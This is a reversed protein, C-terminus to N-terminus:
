VTLKEGKENRFTNYSGNGTFYIYDPPIIGPAGNHYATLVNEAIARIEDTVPHNRDYGFFQSPASVVKLVTNGWRGTDLRNLACWMVAEIGREGCGRAEGWAMRSLACIDEESPEWHDVTLYEFIGEDPVEVCLWEGRAKNAKQLIPKTGEIVTVSHAPIIIYSAAEATVPAPKAACAVAGAIAAISVGAYFIGKKM